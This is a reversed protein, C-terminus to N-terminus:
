VGNVVLYHDHPSPVQERIVDPVLAPEAFCSPDRVVEARADLVGHEDAIEGLGLPDPEEVFEGVDDVLPEVANDQDVEARRLRHAGLAEGPEARARSDEELPSGVLYYSRQTGQSLLLAPDMGPSRECCRWWPIQEKVDSVAASVM